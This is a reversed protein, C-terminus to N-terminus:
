YKMKIKKILDYIAFATFIFMAVPVCIEVAWSAIKISRPYVTGFDFLQKTCIYGSVTMVIGFGATFLANITFLIKKAVGKVKHTVADISVHENDIIIPGSVMLTAWITCWVPIDYMLDITSSFFVRTVIELFNVSVGFFLVLGWFAIWADIIKRTKLNIDYLADSRKVDDVHEMFGGHM